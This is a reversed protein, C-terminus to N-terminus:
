SNTLTKTGQYLYPQPDIRERGQMLEFHIHPGETVGTMGVEAIKQGQKVEEGLSVLIRSCHAYLTSYGDPHRIVVCYGYGEYLSQPDASAHGDQGIAVVVVGSASAYINEGVKGLVDLGRHMGDEREGFGSFIAGVRPLILQGMPDNISDIGLDEPLIKNGFSVVEDVPAVLVQERVIERKMIVGDVEFLRAEFRSKGKQGYTTVDAMTTYHDDSVRYQTTYPTEEEYTTLYSQYLYLRIADTPQPRNSSPSAGSEGAAQVDAVLLKEQNTPLAPSHSSIQAADDIESLAREELPVTMEELLAYFAEEGLLSDTPYAQTIVRIENLIGTDVTGVKEEILRNLQTQITTEDAAVGVLVDDIYLGAATCISDSIMAYLTQSIRSVDTTEGSLRRAFTYRIEYPFHFSEGLIIGANHELENVVSDMVSKNEVVAVPKGNIEARLVVHMRMTFFVSAVLVFVLGIIAYLAGRDRWNKKAHRFAVGEKKALSHSVFSRVRRAFRAFFRLAPTHVELLEADQLPQGAEIRKKKERTVDNEVLRIYVANFFSDM